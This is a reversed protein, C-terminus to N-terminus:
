RKSISRFGAKSWPWSSLRRRASKWFYRFWSKRLARSSRRGWFSMGTTMSSEPMGGWSFTWSMVRSCRWASSATRLAKGTAMVWFRGTVSAMTVVPPTLTPSTSGLVMSDLSM